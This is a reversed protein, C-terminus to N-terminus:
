RKERSHWVRFIFVVRERDIRYRLAYAGDGFAAFVERTRRSDGTLRGLLPFRQLRRGAAQIAEVARGAVEADKEALFRYLRDIDQAARISWRVEAL